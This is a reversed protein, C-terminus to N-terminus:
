KDLIERLVDTQTVVRIPKMSNPADVVYVRHVHQKAMKEIISYLTDTPLAYLLETPTKDSFEQRVKAKYESVPSWLRWFVTADTHIGRLDRASLNDVLRGDDDVVALGEKELKVLERFALISKASAKISAVPEFPPAKFDQIQLDAM